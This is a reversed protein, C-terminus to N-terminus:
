QAEEELIPLTPPVIVTYMLRGHRVAQIENARSWAGSLDGYNCHESHILNVAYLGERRMLMDDTEFVVVYFEQVIRGGTLCIRVGAWQASAAMSTDIRANSIM